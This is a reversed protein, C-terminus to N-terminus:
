FRVGLGTFTSWDTREVGLPPRANDEVAAGVKLDVEGTVELTLTLNGVTRSASVDSFLPQWFAVVDLKAHDGLRRNTHLFISMRGRTVYGVEDELREIELMPTAGVAVTGRDDSALDYRPGFGILWRSRLRQFPNHQVQGFSVTSWRGSFERNHRLHIVVNRATEVGNSEQYSGSVQLRYRHRERQWQVRGGTEFAIRETNGGSGSFLGDLRGSWGPENDDYGQLTNLIVGALVPGDAMLQLVLCLLLGPLHRPIPMSDCGQRTNRDNPIM